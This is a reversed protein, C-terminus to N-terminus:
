AVRAGRKSSAMEFSSQAAKKQQLYVEVCQALLSTTAERWTTPPRCPSELPHGSELTLMEYFTVGLSYIDARHDVDRSGTMQEPAMYHMTGMVQQTGTLSTDLAMSKTEELIVEVGDSVKSADIAIERVVETKADYVMLLRSANNYNKEDYKKSKVMLQKNKVNFDLVYEPKNQYDYKTTTFLLEYQPPTGFSKPLVTAVFFLAILLVPLALGIVLVLNQKMWNKM